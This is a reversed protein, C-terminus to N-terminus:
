KVSGALVSSVLVSISKAELAARQAEDDDAVLVAVNSDDAREFDPKPNLTADHSAFCPRTFPTLQDTTDLLSAAV